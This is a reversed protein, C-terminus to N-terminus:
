VRSLKTVRGRAVWEAVFINGDKDFCADHPHIFKGLQWKSETARISYGGTDKNDQVIRDTDVGLQAVVRNDGDLLSVRAFLEPVLLLDEYVDLNAPWLFGDQTRRHEGDITFWQLRDFERDAVVVLPEEGRNDIWIGHPLKFKGGARDNEDSGPEGFMSLWKGDRDYRHIRYAGYGDILFFDGNPLFAVNTPCFRDRGWPNDDKERPYDDEGEAYVDCEMPAGKRWVQEGKTDLKAHSRQQQYACVYLFDQGNEQRIDLGHGGGQFQSGFSRVYKGDQDFVFIAPHDSQELRGEQIVYLFGESDVAVNHTTQWSFESPLQPWQDHVEYQFDGEGIIMQSETKKATAIAPAALTAASVVAASKMFERRTPAGSGSKSM